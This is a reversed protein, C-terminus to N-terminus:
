RTIRPALWLAADDASSGNAQVALIFQVSHGALTSLDVDLKRTEDDYAEIWQGLNQLEGGDKRYNLQIKVSCQTAGDRCGIVAKFHYGALVEIAPFKGSIAGDTVVEPRTELTPEDDPKGGQFVPENIKRIYGNPDGDTGPCPLTGAGSVWEAECVHNTFSYVTEGSTSPTPTPGVTIQVYFPGSAGLGFIVGHDNRLKWNGRHTGNTVPAKLNLSIDVSAGPPVSGALAQSAQGGMLNGDAFVVAYRADWTCTGANKLRWTKVFDGGPPLNTDDPITVDAVFGARDTCSPTGFLSPIPTDSPAPTATSLDLTPPVPVTSTPQLLATTQAAITMAAATAFPEQSIEPAHCALGALALALTACAVLVPKRRSRSM